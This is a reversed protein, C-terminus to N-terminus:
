CTKKEEVKEDIAQFFIFLLDVLFNLNELYVVFMILFSYISVSNKPSELTQRHRAQLM